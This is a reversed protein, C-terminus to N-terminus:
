RLEGALPALAGATPELSGSELGARIERALARAESDQEVGLVTLVSALVAGDSRLELAVTDTDSGVYPDESV